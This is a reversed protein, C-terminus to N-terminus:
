SVLIHMGMFINAGVSTPDLTYRMINQCMYTMKELWQAFDNCILQLFFPGGFLDEIQM